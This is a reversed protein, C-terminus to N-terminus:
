QERILNDIRDDLKKTTLKMVIDMAEKIENHFKHKGHLSELSSGMTELTNMGEITTFQHGM